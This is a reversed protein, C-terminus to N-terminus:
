ASQAAPPLKVLKLYKRQYPQWQQWLNLRSTRFTAEITPLQQDWQNGLEDSLFQGIVSQDQLEGLIEQIDRFERIQAAYPIGYLGRFFEAQYRVQKIQKRLDHLRDSEQALCRDIQALTIKALPATQNGQQRTAVLWGPHDLLSAIPTIIKQAAGKQATQQAAATFAPQKVWQKFQKLLTKYDDSKLLAKLEGFNSERRKKMTKLLAQITKREAKSFYLASNGKQQKQFAEKPSAEKLSAEKPSAEKQSKEEANSKSHETLMTEFRQQMVDLDRVNGLAQTLRKVGKTLKPMLSKSGKGKIEVVDEFLILASRLRRTGVRMQHLPEIDTDQLVQSRLGAVRKSQQDIIQYAYGGLCTNDKAIQEPNAQTLPNLDALSIEAAASKTNNPM